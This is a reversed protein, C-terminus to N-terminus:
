QNESIRHCTLQDAASWASDKEIEWSMTFQDKAVVNYVFRNKPVKYSATDTMTLTLSKEQWGSSSYVAYGSNNADIEVIQKSGSDYGVLYHGVYGSPEIDTEM